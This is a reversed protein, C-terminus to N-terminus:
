LGARLKLEAQCAALQGTVTDIGDRLAFYASRANTDLRAGASIDLGASGTSTGPASDGPCVARIRLGVAGSQLRDRLTTTENQAKRLQAAHADDAAALKTDLAQREARLTAIAADATQLRAITAAEATADAHWSAVRYGGFAAIAAVIALIRIDPIM